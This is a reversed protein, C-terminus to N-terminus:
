YEGRMGFIVVQAMAGQVTWSAGARARLAMDAKQSSGVQIRRQGLCMVSGKM